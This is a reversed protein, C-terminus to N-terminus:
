TTNVQLVNFAGQDAQSVNGTGVWRYEWVGAEDAALDYYYNGTSAKIIQGAAVTLTTVNGSPDKVELTVTTPDAAAGGADTFACSLRITDSVHYTM